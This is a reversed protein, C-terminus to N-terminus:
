DEKDDGTKIINGEYDVLEVHISSSKNACALATWVAQMADCLIGGNFGYRRVEDEYAPADCYHVGGAAKAVEYSSFSDSSWFALQM